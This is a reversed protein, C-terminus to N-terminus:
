NSHKSHIVFRVNTNFVLMPNKLGKIRWVHRTKAFTIHPLMEMNGVGLIHLSLSMWFQSILWNILHLIVLISVEYCCCCGMSGNCLFTVYWITIYRLKLQLSFSLHPFTGVGIFELTGWWSLSNGYHWIHLRV